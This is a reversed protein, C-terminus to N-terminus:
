GHKEELIYGNELHINIYAEGVWSHFSLANTTWVKEFSTFFFQIKFIKAELIAMLFLLFKTFQIFSFELYIPVHEFEILQTTVQCHHPRVSRQLTKFITILPLPVNFVIVTIRGLLKSNWRESDKLQLRKLDSTKQYNSAGLPNHRVLVTVKDHDKVKAYIARKPKWGILIIMKTIDRIKAQVARGPKWDVSVSM